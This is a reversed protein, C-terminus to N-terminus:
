YFDTIRWEKNVKEYVITIDDDEDNNNTDTTEVKQKSLNKVQFSNTSIPQNRYVKWFLKLDSTQISSDPAFEFNHKLSLEINKVIIEKNSNYFQYALMDASDDHPRDLVEDLNKAQWIKRQVNNDSIKECDFYKVVESNKHKNALVIQYRIYRWSNLFSLYSVIVAVIGIMLIVSAGIGIQKPTVNIKSLDM